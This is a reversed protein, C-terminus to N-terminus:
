FKNLFAHIHKNIEGPREQNIFHAAGELVVVEELLPVLQKFAGKHIFDKTGPMHYTPDFEGVVFKVPINVKAGAWPASLEWNRYNLYPCM